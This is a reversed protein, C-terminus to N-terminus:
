TEIERLEFLRIPTERTKLKRQAVQLSWGRDRVWDIFEDGTQRGPEGLIVRGCDELHERWFADLFPWQEREYLIDAGLILDFREELRDKRWDVRRARVRDADALSNLRAFLLALPEVDAFLVRHGLRAAAAGALGMGCGLDLVRTLELRADVLWGAVALASEWLQAWYPLAVAQGNSEQRAVVDLVRNPDAIRTFAIPLGSLEVHETVTRYHSHIRALLHAARSSVSLSVGEEEL